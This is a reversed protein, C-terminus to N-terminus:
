QDNASDILEINDPFSHYVDSLQNRQKHLYLKYYYSEYIFEKTSSPMKFFYIVLFPSEM